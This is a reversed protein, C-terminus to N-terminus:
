SQYVYFLRGVIHKFLLIKDITLRRNSFWIYHLLTITTRDLCVKRVNSTRKTVSYKRVESKATLFKLTPALFLTLATVTFM